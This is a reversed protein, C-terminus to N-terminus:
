EFGNKLRLSQQEFSCKIKFLPTNNVIEIDDAISAIEGTVLGWHNYDFADIQFKVQSGEQLFGIDSPSVYLEACIEADPSLTALITGVTM